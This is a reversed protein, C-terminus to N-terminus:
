LENIKMGYYDEGNVLKGNLLLEFYLQNKTNDALNSIGSKGIIDGSKVMTNVSVNTESLFKYKSVLNDNHKIEITKLSLDNDEVKIVEGPAIALVDFTEPAGYIVGTNQMYTNEYMVIGSLQKEKSGKYDYYESLIDVKDSAYPRIITEDNSFVPTIRDMIPDTVLNQRAKKLNAIFTYSIVLVCLFIAVLTSYITAKKLVQKQM